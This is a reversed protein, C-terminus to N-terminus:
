TKKDAWDTVNENLANLAGLLREGMDNTVGSGGSTNSEPITEKRKRRDKARLKTHDKGGGRHISEM